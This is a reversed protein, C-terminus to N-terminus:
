KEETDGVTIKAKKKGFKSCNSIVEIEDGAKADIIVYSVLQFDGDTQKNFTQKIIEEGNLEVVIEDIYHSTPDSVSHEVTVTLISNEEDFNLEVDSAGHAMVLGALALLILITIKKM